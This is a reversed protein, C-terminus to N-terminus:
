EVGKPLNDKIVSCWSVDFHEVPMVPLDATWEAYGTRANRKWTHFHHVEEVSTGSLYVHRGTFAAPSDEDGFSFVHGWEKGAINKALIDNFMVGENGRPIMKRLEAPTPLEDEAQWYYSKRGTVILDANCQDRLTKLLKLITHSIGDPISASIDAIILNRKQFAADNNGVILGRRKNYGERWQHGNLLNTRICDTMDGVFQPLLRLDMLTDINVEASIDGVFKDLPISDVERAVKYGNTSFTRTKTAIDVTRTYNGDKDKKFTRTQEKINDSYPRQLDPEDLEEPVDKDGPVWVIESRYERPGFVTTWMIGPFMKELYPRLLYKILSDDGENWCIYPIGNERAMQTDSTDEAVYLNLDVRIGPIVLKHLM